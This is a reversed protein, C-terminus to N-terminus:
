GAGQGHHLVFQLTSPLSDLNSVIFHGVNFSLEPSDSVILFLQLNGLLLRPLPLLFVLLLDLLDVDTELLSLGSRLVGLHVDAFKMQSNVVKLIFNDSLLHLDVSDGRLKVVSEIFHEVSISQYYEGHRLTGVLYSCKQLM